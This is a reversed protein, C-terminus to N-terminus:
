ANASPPTCASLISKFQAVSPIVRQGVLLFGNSRIKWLFRLITAVPLSSSGIGRM